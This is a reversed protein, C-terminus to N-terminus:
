RGNLFGRFLIYFVGLILGIILGFNNKNYASIGMAIALLMIIVFDYHRLGRKMNYYYLFDKEKNLGEKM